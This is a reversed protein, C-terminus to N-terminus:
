AQAVMQAVTCSSSPMGTRVPIYSSFGPASRFFLTRIIAVALLTESM